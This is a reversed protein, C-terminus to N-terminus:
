LLKIGTCICWFVTLYIFISLFIFVNKYVLNFDGCRLFNNRTQYQKVERFIIKIYYDIYCVSWLYHM